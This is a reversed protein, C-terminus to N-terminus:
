VKAMTINNNDPSSTQSSSTLTHPRTEVRSSNIHADAHHHKFMIQNYSNRVDHKQNTKVSCPMNQSAHKLIIFQPGVMNQISM